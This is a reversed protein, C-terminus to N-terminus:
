SLEPRSWVTMSAAAVQFGAGHSQTQHWGDIRAAYVGVRVRMRCASQGHVHTQKWELWGAPSSSSSTAVNM